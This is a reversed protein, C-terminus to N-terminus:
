ISIEMKTTNIQYFRSERGSETAPVHNGPVLSLSWSWPGPSPGPSWPVLPCPGPSWPGLVLPWPGLVLSRIFNLVWSLLILFYQFLVKPSQWFTNNLPGFLSWIKILHIGSIGMEHYNTASLPWREHYSSAM